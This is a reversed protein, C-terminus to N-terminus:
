RVVVQGTMDPHISCAYSFTGPTNFTRQVEQGYTAAISTPTGAGGGQFTVTHEIAGFQWTVTGGAKIAIHDPTFTYYSSGAVVVAATPLSGTVDVPISATKTVSGKTVSVEIHASGASYGTVTGDGAVEAVTANDSSYSPVLGTITAGNVDRASVLLTSSQGASLTLSPVNTSISALTQTNGGGNNNGGNNNGGNNNGGPGTSGGGGCGAVLLAATVTLIRGLLTM